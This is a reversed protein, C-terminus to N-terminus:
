VVAEFHRYAIDPAAGQRGALMWRIMPLNERGFFLEGDVLFSPVGFIGAEWIAAQMVDHEARGESDLFDRFGALEVGAQALLQEIRAPDEADVERRWFPVYFARIYALLREAGQRKAWMFGIHAFSTDWIKITGRLTFSRLGAYRRCDRYSYKVAAWQEPTRDAEAVNGQEDLKASGLYSPIDLTLPRWDVEIGLESAIDSTPEVSLFAYPSKFDLYVILPSESSLPDFTSPM